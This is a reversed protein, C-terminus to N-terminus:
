VTAGTAENERLAEEVAQKVREEERETRRRGRARLLLVSGVVAAAVLLVLVLLAWPVAATGSSARVGDLGPTVGSVVPLQPDLTTHQM